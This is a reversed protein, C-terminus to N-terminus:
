YDTIEDFLKKFDDYKMRPGPFGEIEFVGPLGSWGIYKAPIKAWFLEGQYKDVVLVDM